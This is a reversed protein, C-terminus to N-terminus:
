VSGGFATEFVVTAYYIFAIGCVVIVLVKIMRPAALSVGLLWVVILYGVTRASSRYVFRQGL